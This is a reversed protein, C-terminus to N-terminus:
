MRKDHSACGRREATRARSRLAAAAPVREGDKALAVGSARQVFVALGVGGGGKTGEYDAPPGAQRVLLFVGAAAALAPVAALWGIWRRRRGGAAAEEVAEVTAPFVYRMFDEGQRRMEALRAQCAACGDVHARHESEGPTLLVEELALDSPCRATTM